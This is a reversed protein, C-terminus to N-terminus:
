VRVRYTVYDIRLTGSSPITYDRLKQLGELNLKSGNVM